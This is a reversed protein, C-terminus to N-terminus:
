HGGVGGHGGFGGGHHGGGSPPGGGWFGGDSPPGGRFNYICLFAGCIVLLLGVSAVLENFERSPQLVLTVIILIGGIAILRRGFRGHTM